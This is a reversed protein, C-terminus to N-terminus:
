TLTKDVDFLVLGKYKKKDNPQTFIHALLFITMASVSVVPLIM